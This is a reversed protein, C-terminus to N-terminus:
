KTSKGPCCARGDTTYEFFGKGCEFGIERRGVRETLMRHASFEASGSERVLDECWESIVDLGISDALAFPGSTLGMASRLSNDTGCIKGGADVTKMASNLLSVFSRVSYAGPIDPTVVPTKGMRKVFESVAAVAEPTSNRGPIVELKPSDWVPPFFRLGVVSGPHSIGACLKAVAVGGPNVAVIVDAGCAVELRRLLEKKKELGGNTADVVLWAKAPLSKLEKLTSIRSLVAKAESASLTWRQVKAKLDAKFGDAQCDCKETELCIIHVKLGCFSAAAAVERGLRGDSLVVVEELSRGTSKQEDITPSM